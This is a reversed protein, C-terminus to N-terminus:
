DIENFWDSQVNIEKGKDKEKSYTTKVGYPGCHSLLIIKQNIPKKIKIDEDIRDLLAHLDNTYAEDSM